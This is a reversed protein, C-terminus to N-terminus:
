FHQTSAEIVPMHSFSHRPMRKPLPLSPSSSWSYSTRCISVPLGPRLGWLFSLTAASFTGPPKRGVPPGKMRRLGGGVVLDRTARFKTGRRQQLGLKLGSQAGRIPPTHSSHAIWIGTVVLSPNKAVRFLYGRSVINYKTHLNKIM